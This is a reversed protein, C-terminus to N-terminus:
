RRSRWLHMEVHPLTGSFSPSPPAPVPCPWTTVPTDKAGFEAKIADTESSLVRLTHPAWSPSAFAIRWPCVCTCGNISADSAREEDEEDCQHPFDISGEDSSVRKEGGRRMRWERRQVRSGRVEDGKRQNNGHGIGGGFRL